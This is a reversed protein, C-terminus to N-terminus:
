RPNCRSFLASYRTSLPICKKRRFDGEIFCVRIIARKAVSILTPRLVDVEWFICLKYKLSDQFICIGQFLARNISYYLCFFFGSAARPLASFHVALRYIKPTKELLGELFAKSVGVSNSQRQFASFFAARIGRRDFVAFLRTFAPNKDYNLTLWIGQFIPLVSVNCFVQFGNARQARPNSDWVRRLMKCLKTCYFASSNLSIRQFDPAKKKTKLGGFNEGQLSSSFERRVGSFAKHCLAKEARGNARSKCM